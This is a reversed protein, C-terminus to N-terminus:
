DADSSHDPTTGVLRNSFWVECRSGPHLQAVKALAEDDNDASLWTSDHLLRAGDLRYFRYREHSM